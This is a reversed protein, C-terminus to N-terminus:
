RSKIIGLHDLHSILEMIDALAIDPVVEYEEVILQHIEGITSKGDLLEWIRAAVENLTYISDLDSIKSRTPVLLYEGAINRSVVTPDKEFCRSLNNEDMMNFSWM